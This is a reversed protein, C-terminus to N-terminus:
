SLIELCRTLSIDTALDELWVRPLANEGSRVGALAGAVAATTDTDRGFAIATAIVEEFNESSLFAHRASWLCDIVYGSGKPNDKQPASLVGELEQAHDVWQPNTAYIKDLQECAQEFGDEEGELLKTAWLCFLACCVQSLPHGHTVLSQRHAWDVLESAPGRHWLALPMVRMRSGNGNDLRDSPGSVQPSVGQHVSRLAHSTQVGIDFLRDGAAYKGINVWMLLRKAFDDLDLGGCSYLSDLLAMAQAGDDSWHGSPVAAHARHFGGRELTYPLSLASRPLTSITSQDHFEFPVGAADGLLLGLLGGRRKDSSGRM